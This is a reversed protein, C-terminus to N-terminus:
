VSLPLPQLSQLLEQLPTVLLGPFLGLLVCVVALAVILVAAVLPRDREGEHNSARLVIRFSRMYGLIVGVGSCVLIVLFLGDHGVLSRFVLWRTAFGSLFPFGGIALGGAVYGVKGAWGGSLQESLTPREGDLGGRQEHFSGLSMAILLVVLSRNVAQALAATTGLPSGAGLAVLVFGMDAVAAYGLLRGPQRQAFALVGGVLATLLGSLTILSLIPSGSVLWPNDGLLGILLALHAQSLICILVAAAMPPADGAVPPLWSHFPAVALLIGFGVSMAIVSFRILLVNGPELTYSEVLWAALLLCPTAVVLPIVYGLGTAAPTPRRGHIMFVFILGAMEMLLVAILFTEIMLAGSVLGLIGLLSPLFAWGQPERWTYLVMFGALGFFFGLLFRRLDGLVLQRGLLYAPEAESYQICVVALALITILSLAATVTWYRRLLYVPAAMILPLFILLLLSM